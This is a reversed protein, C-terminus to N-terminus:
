SRAVGLASMREHERHQLIPGHEMSRDAAARDSSPDPLPVRFYKSSDPALIESDECEDYQRYVRVATGDRNADEPDPWHVM